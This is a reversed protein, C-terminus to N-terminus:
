RFERNLIVPRAFWSLWMSKIAMLWLPVNGVRYKSQSISICYSHNKPCRSIRRQELRDLVVLLDLM